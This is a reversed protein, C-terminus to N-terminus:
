EPTFKVADAIVNASAKNSLVVAAPKAPDFRYSGLRNWQRQNQKQNLKVTDTGDAHEVTYAADPAHDDAPDDGYWVFVKWKGAVPLKVEWRASKDGEPTTWHCPTGAWDGGAPDVSWQGKTTFRGMPDHNDIVIPQPKAAPRPAPPPASTSASPAPASSAAAPAAATEAKKPEEVRAGGGEDCAAFLGAGAVVIGTRM